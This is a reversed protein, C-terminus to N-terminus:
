RVTHHAGQKRGLGPILLINCCHVPRHPVSCHAASLLFFISHCNLQVLMKAILRHSMFTCGVLWGVCVCVCVVVVAAAFLSLSWTYEVEGCQRVASHTQNGAIHNVPVSTVDSETLLFSYVPYSNHYMFSEYLAALLTISNATNCFNLIVCGGHSVQALQRVAVQRM